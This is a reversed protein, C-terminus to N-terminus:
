FFHAPTAPSSGADEPNSVRHEGEPLAGRLERDQAVGRCWNYRVVVSAVGLKDSFKLASFFLPLRASGRFPAPRQSGGGGGQFRGGQCPNRSRALGHVQNGNSEKTDGSVRMVISGCLTMTEM